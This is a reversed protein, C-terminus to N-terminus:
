LSRIGYDELLERAEALEQALRRVRARARSLKKRCAPSCLVPVRYRQRKVERDCVQCAVPFTQTTQTM